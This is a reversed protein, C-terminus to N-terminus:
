QLEPAHAPLRRVKDYREAKALGADTNIGMHVPYGVPPAENLCLRRFLSLEGKTLAKGLPVPYLYVVQQHCVSLVQAGRCRGKAAKALYRCVAIPHADLPAPLIGRVETREGQSLLLITQAM